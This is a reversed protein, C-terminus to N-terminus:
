QRIGCIPPGIAFPIAIGINELMLGIVAVDRPSTTVDEVEREFACCRRTGIASYGGGVRSFKLSLM